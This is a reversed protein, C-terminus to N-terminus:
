RGLCPLSRLPGETGQIILPPGRSERCVSCFDLTGYTIFVHDAKQTVVERGIAGSSRALVLISSRMSALIMWSLYGVSPFSGIIGRAIPALNPTEGFVM